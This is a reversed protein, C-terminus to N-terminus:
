AKTQVLSLPGEGWEAGHPFPIVESYLGLSILDSSSLKSVINDKMAWFECAQREEWQNDGDQPNLLKTRNAVHV